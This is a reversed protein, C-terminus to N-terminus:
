AWAAAKVLMVQDYEGREQKFSMSVMWMALVCLALVFPAVQRPAQSNRHNNQCENHSVKVAGTM